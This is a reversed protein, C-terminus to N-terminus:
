LLSEWRVLIEECAETDIDEVSERLKTHCEEQEGEFSYEELELLVEEMGDSDLEEMVERMKQFLHELEERVATKKATKKQETDEQFYKKLIEQHWRYQTLMEDTSAHILEADQNNGAQEMHEAKSALEMAGIQRSASKLAHVEITYDRWREETEYLKIQECKRDIARYYDKLTAWFLKETGLLKMAAETDLGQIEIVPQAKKEEGMKRGATSYGRKIKELPLWQRIKSVIVKVEIPKAVFDNMGEELFMEKTGNVANATLAIIPVDSYNEYFRRIIHTTEVGDVEPMMHDMFILDYQKQAIKSIADKGGTATDIKMQLPELLGEAVTLNIANDDVILVEADPASFNFVGESDTDEDDYVEQGSLIAMLNLPFMPKKAVRLNTIAYQITSHFNVLLVGIIKEHEKLFMQVYDTFLSQEVFLFCNKNGVWESLEGEESLLQYKGGLQEVDKQLQRKVYRNAILAVVQVEEQLVSVSPEEKVVRQPLRFSFTSGKGYESEVQISGNMLTLLQKSIALGLGTGEINRNRKSDVQQFSQFLKGLDEKKIGSGTDRVQVRLEVIDEQIYEYEVQLHVEGHETFKVANNMLNVIIQKIRINDGYLEQPLDAPIDMTFEVDKKGIRTMIINVIDNLMSMPEYEVESIDMKGSEIKSFDLIDNIITLLAQGSSKIQHIYDRAAPTMEERLAMEAMGIVANMPTRIEHSMNALFDSKMRSAAEVEINGIQLQYGKYAIESLVSAITHLFRAANEMKKRRVVNVKRVAKVYEDPEIGLEIAMQRTKELDAEEILVQGGIFCGVMEGDAIIPAAFDVLGAHCTYYYSKGRRLAEEAGNKDCQECRQCGKKSQRTYKMCFDSFRSGKTVAVGDKDTTLAAIGTMESFADQVRQLLEIDILDSLHLDKDM